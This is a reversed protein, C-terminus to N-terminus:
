VQSILRVQDTESTPADLSSSASPEAGPGSAFAQAHERVWSEFSTAPAKTIAAIDPGGRTMCAEGADIFRLLELVGDAQWEPWGGGVMGARAAEYPVHTYTAPRGLVRSFTAAVESNTM